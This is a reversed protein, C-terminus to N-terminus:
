NKVVRYVNSGKAGAVQIMYVGTQNGSLDIVHGTQVNSASFVVKGLANYVTVNAQESANMTLTVKGKTPNPYLNLGLDATKENLGITNVTVCASTDVCGAANTVIVAYSGSSPINPTYTVSTAGAIPQNDSCTIWQYSQGAPTATIVTGSVTATAVPVQNVTVIVQDTNVCGNADTGTVTYTTTATANFAVNNSIGNNWTYTAAGGGNLTVSSGACVEQDAGASVTPLANVVVTLINSTVAPCTGNKVEAKVLFTGTVPVTVTQTAGTGASIYMPIGPGQVFWEVNGTNGTISATLVDNLCANLDSVSATGAVSPQDVFITVQDTNTCVGNDVTVTYTTTTTVVFPAAQSVGNDWSFTGTGTATLSVSSGSCVTQDPGANATPATGSVTVTVEDTDVCGNADTGTVTYTTTANIAFPTGNVVSNDWSYTTAGTATLTINSGACATFDTGASVVPLANVSIVVATRPSAPCSPVTEEVWYTTAATIAGTTFTAGVHESNGATAADYWTLTSGTSQSPTATLTATSGSCVSVSAAVPATLTPCPNASCNATHMGINPTAPNATNFVGSVIWESDTANTGASATWNTNPSCVSAKRIVIKDVAASADGAIVWGSAGPDSGKNGFVDIGVNNKLLEVADNGNFNCVGSTLNSAGTVNALSASANTIVYTNGAGLSGTLTQTTNPTSAGNTYLKVSYISLDVAAGTGNYIEIYKNNGPGEGYESLILDTAQSFALVPFLLLLTTFIKM